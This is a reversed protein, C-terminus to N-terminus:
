GLIVDTWKGEVGIFHWYGDDGFHGIPDGEPAVRLEQYTLQVWKHSGPLKLVREEPVNELQIKM